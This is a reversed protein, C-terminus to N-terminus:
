ATTIRADAYNLIPFFLFSWWIVGWMLALLLSSFVVRGISVRSSTSNSIAPQERGRWFGVWLFLSAPLGLTFFYHAFFIPILYVLELNWQFIALWGIAPAASLISAYIFISGFGLFDKKWLWYTAVLTFVLGFISASIGTAVDFVWAWAADEGIDFVLYPLILFPLILFARLFNVILIALIVWIVMRWFSIGSHKKKDISLTFM